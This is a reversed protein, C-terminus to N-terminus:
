YLTDPFYISQVYPNEKRLLLVVAFSPGILSRKVKRVAANSLIVEESKLNPFKTIHNKIAQLNRKDAAEKRMFWHIKYEDYVVYYSESM